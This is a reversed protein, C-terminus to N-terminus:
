IIDTLHMIINNYYIFYQSSIKKDTRVLIKMENSYSINAKPTSCNLFVFAIDYTKCELPPLYLCIRILLLHQTLHCTM